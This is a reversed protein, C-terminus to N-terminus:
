FSKHCWGNLSKISRILNFWLMNNYESISGALTLFICNSCNFHNLELFCYLGTTTWSFEDKYQCILSYWSLEICWRKFIRSWATYNVSLDCLTIIEVKYWLLCSLSCYGRSMVFYKMIVEWCYLSYYSLNLGKRKFKTEKVVVPCSRDFHRTRYSICM